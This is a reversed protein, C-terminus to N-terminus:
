FKGRTIDDIHKRICPLNAEFALRQEYCMFKLGSTLANFYTNTICHERGKFCLLAEDYQQCLSDYNKIYDASADMARRLSQQLKRYCDKSCDTPLAQM